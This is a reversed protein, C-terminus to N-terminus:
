VVKGHGLLKNRIGPLCICGHHTVTNCINKYNFLDCGPKKIRVMIDTTEEGGTDFRLFGVMPVLIACDGSTRVRWGRAWTRITGRGRGGGRQGSSNAKGLQHGCRTGQLCYSTQVGQPPECFEQFAHAGRSRDLGHSNMTWMLGIGGPQPARTSTHAWLIVALNFRPSSCTQGM